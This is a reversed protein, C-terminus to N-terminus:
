LGHLPRLYPSSRLPTQRTVVVLYQSAPRALLLSHVHIHTTMLFYIVHCAPVNISPLPDLQIYVHSTPLCRATPLVISGLAMAIRTRCNPPLKAPPDERAAGDRM